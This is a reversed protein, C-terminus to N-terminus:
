TINDVMVDFELYFEAKQPGPFIKAEWYSQSETLTTQRRPFRWRQAYNQMHHGVMRQAAKMVPEMLLKEMKPSLRNFLYAWRGGKKIKDLARELVRRQVGLLPALVDGTVEFRVGVEFIHDDDLFEESAEQTFDVEKITVPGAAQHLLPVLHARFEPQNQALKAVRDRLSM